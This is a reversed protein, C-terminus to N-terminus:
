RELVARLRDLSEVEARMSKAVGPGMLRKLGSLECSLSFRVRTGDGDPSLEYRGTPRVPGAIARFALVRGPELATIEYDAPVRRGFPGKVGQRYVAGVGNGSVKAVDTVGPRWQPATEGEAIFAFVDAPPRRITVSHEATSM